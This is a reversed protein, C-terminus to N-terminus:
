IENPINSSSTLNVIFNPIEFSLGKDKKWLFTVPILGHLM